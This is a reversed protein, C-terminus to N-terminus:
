KERLAPLLIASVQINVFLVDKYFTAGAWERGTFSRKVSPDNEDGVVSDWFNAETGPYVADITALDDANLFINNKAFEFTNGKEDLGILRKPDSGGDECLIAAGSPSIAVSPM